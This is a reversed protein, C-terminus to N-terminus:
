EYEVKVARLADDLIDPDTAAIAVIAEGKFSPELTLIPQTSGRVKLPPATEPTMVEVVGPLAEAASTDISVVRAHPHPSRLVAAWLMGPLLVDYTYQAEGSARAAGDIRQAPQGVIALEENEGWVPLEPGDILAYQVSVRGEVNIETKILKPM